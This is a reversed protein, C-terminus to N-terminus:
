KEKPEPNPTELEFLDDDKIICKIRYLLGALGCVNNYVKAKADYNFESEMRKEFFEIEEILLKTKLEQWSNPSM